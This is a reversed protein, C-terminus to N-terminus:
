KTFSKVFKLYTETSHEKSYSHNLNDSIPKSDLINIQKTALAYRQYPNLLKLTKLMEESYPILTSFSLFEKQTSIDRIIPLPITNKKGFSEYDVIVAITLAEWENTICFFLEGIAYESTFSNIKLQNDREKQLTYKSIKNNILLQIEKSFVHSFM